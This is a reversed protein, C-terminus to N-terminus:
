NIKKNPLGWKSPKGNILWAIVILRDTM